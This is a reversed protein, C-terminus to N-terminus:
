KLGDEDEINAVNSIVPHVNSLFMTENDDLENLTSSSSSSRSAKIIELEGFRTRKRGINIM